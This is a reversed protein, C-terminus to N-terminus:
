LFFVLFFYFKSWKNLLHIIAFCSYADSHLKDKPAEQDVEQRVLIDRERLHQSMYISSHVTYCYWIVPPSSLCIIEPFQLILHRKREQINLQVRNLANTFWVKLRVPSHAISTILLKVVHFIQPKLSELDHHSQQFGNTAMRKLCIFHPLALFFM